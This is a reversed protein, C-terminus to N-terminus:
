KCKHTTKDCTLKTKGEGECYDENGQCNAGYALKATCLKKGSANTRCWGSKCESDKSCERDNSKKSEEVCKKSSSSCAYGFKCRNADPNCTDGLELKPACCKTKEANNTCPGSDAKCWGSTCSADSSCSHGDEYQVCKGVLPNFYDYKEGDGLEPLKCIGSKCEKPNQCSEGPERAASVCTYTLETDCTTFVKCLNQLDGSCSQGSKPKLVCVLGNGEDGCRGSSCEEHKTCPESLNLLGHTRVCKKDTDGSGICNYSQCEKHEKCPSNDALKAACNRPANEADSDAKCWESLCDMDFQCSEDLDAKAFGWYSTKSSDQAYVTHAACCISVSCFLFMILKNM